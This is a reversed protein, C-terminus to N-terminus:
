ILVALTGLLDFLWYLIFINICMSLFFLIVTVLKRVKLLLFLSIFDFAVSILVLILLPLYDLYFLGIGLLLKIFTALLIFLVLIVTFLIIFIKKM